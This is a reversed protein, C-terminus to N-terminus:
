LKMINVKLDKKSSLPINYFYKNSDSNSNYFIDLRFRHKRSQFFSLVFAYIIPANKLFILKIITNMVQIVNLKNDFFHFHNCRAVALKM